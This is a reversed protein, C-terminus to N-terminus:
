TTPDQGVDRKRADGLLSLTIAAHLADVLRPSPMIDLDKHAGYGYPYNATWLRVGGVISTYEGENKIDNRIIADRVFEDFFKSKRHLRFWHKPRVIRYILDRM